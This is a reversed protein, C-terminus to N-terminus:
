IQEGKVSYDATELYIPKFLRSNDKIFACVQLHHLYKKSPSNKEM